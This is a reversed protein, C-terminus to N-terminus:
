VQLAKHANMNRVIEEALGEKTRLDLRDAPATVVFREENEAMRRYGVINKFKDSADLTEIIVGGKSESCHMIEGNGLYIGCHDVGQPVPTKPLFEISAYDIKRKMDGTNSFVADGAKLDKEEIIAGFVYQDVSMRPIQVGNQAFAYSVFSSCDFFRPADYSVSAGYEYPTGILTQILKLVGDIPKVKKYAFGIEDFIKEIDEDTIKVGISDSAEKASIGLKYPNAQRPHNDTKM